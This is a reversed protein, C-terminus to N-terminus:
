YSAPSKMNNSCQERHRKSSTVLTVYLLLVAPYLSPVQVYPSVDFACNAGCQFSTVPSYLVSITIIYMCCQCLSWSFVPPPPSDHLNGSRFQFLSPLAASPHNIDAWDGRVRETAGRGGASFFFIDRTLKLMLWVDQLVFPRQLSYNITM